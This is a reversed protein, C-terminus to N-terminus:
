GDLQELPPTVGLLHQCLTPWPFATHGYIPLGDCRLGLQIAVDELTITCEGQVMHFTHTEPRWREVLASVLAADHQFTALRSAGYFRAQM